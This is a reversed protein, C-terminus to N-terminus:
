LYVRVRSRKRLESIWKEFREGAHRARLEPEIETRVEDLSAIGAEERREVKLLHFGFETEVVDSLGNEELSFVADELEAVLDGRVVWGILGNNGAEPGSSYAASLRGFSAGADLEGKLQRLRAKNRARDQADDGAPLFVQRVKARDPRAFGAKNDEYYQATESQSVQVDKEFDRRKGMAMAMALYQKRVRERFDSMTEGALELEKLFEENSDYRERIEGIREEVADDNVEMGALLAERLLIKNDIAQELAAKFHHEAQRGFEEENTASSRLEHLVPAIDALIDSRLIVETDVTAAVCDVIEGRAFGAALLVALGFCIDFRKM